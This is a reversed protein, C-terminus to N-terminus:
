ASIRESGARRVEEATLGKGKRWATSEAYAQEFVRAFEAASIQQMQGSPRDKMLRVALMAPPQGPSRVMKHGPRDDLGGGIRSSTITYSSGDAYRTSLDAWVGAKTHEYVVAVASEMTKVLLHLLVGKMERVEFSGAREFGRRELASLASRAEPKIPAKGPVLTIRDPQQDLAKRGVDLLGKTGLLLMTIRNVV